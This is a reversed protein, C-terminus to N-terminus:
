AEGDLPSTGGRPAQERFGALRKRLDPSVGEPLEYLLMEILEVKSTRVGERRFQHILEAMREDLPRRVRIALNASPDDPRLM